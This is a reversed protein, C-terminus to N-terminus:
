PLFFTVINQANHIKCGWELMKKNNYSGQILYNPLWVFDTFNSM